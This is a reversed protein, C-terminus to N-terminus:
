GGTGAKDEPFLERSMAPQPGDDDRKSKFFFHIYKVINEVSCVSKIVGSPILFSPDLTLHTTM